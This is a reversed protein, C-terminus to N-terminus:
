YEISRSHFAQLSGDRQGLQASGILNLGVVDQQSTEPCDGSETDRSHSRVQDVQVLQPDIPDLLLIWVPTFTAYESAVTTKSSRAAAIARASPTSVTPMAWKSAAKGNDFGFPTM